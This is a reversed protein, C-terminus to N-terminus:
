GRRLTNAGRNRIVLAQASDCLARAENEAKTNQNPLKGLKNELVSLAVELDQFDVSTADEGKCIVLEAQVLGCESFLRLKTKTEISDTM